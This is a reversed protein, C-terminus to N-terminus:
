ITSDVTPNTSGLLTQRLCPLKVVVLISPIVIAMITDKASPLNMPIKPKEHIATLSRRAGIGSFVVHLFIALTAKKPTIPKVTGMKIAFRANAPSVCTANSSKDLSPITISESIKPM